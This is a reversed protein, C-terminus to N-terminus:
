IPSEQETRAEDLVTDELPIDVFGYHARLSEDEPRHKIDHALRAMERLNNAMSKGTMRVMTSFLGTDNQLLSYPEDFEVVRGADLVLVRDSDMITHLRHAITLM